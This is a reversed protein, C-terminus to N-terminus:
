FMLLGGDVNIAQESILVTDPSALFLALVAVDDPADGL